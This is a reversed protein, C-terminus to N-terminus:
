RAPPTADETLACDFANLRNQVLGVFTESIMKGSEKVFTEIMQTNKM